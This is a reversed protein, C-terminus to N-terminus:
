KAEGIKKKLETLQSLHLREEAIIKALIPAAPPPLIEQMSYYFLISDKEANIGIEIAAMDNDTRAALESTAMEDTFVANNVLARVYDNYEQSQEEPRVYKEAEGLMEGFIRAHEREANALRIFLERTSSERTSGAMVDYFAIGQKEIGIAIDILEGGSFAISM